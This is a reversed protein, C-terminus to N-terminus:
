IIGTLYAKVAAGIAKPSFRERFAEQGGKAIRQRLARDRKLLLIAQALAQPNAMECLLANEKHALVERASPSDGTIVPKGMALAVFVKRPVVRRAQPTDGFIGLCVDAPLIHEAILIEPPLWTRHFTISKVQLREALSSVEKYAQGDGVLEFSIDPYGELIKAAKVICDVGHLPIYQGFYLVRFPGNDRRRMGQRCRNYVGEAGVYAWRLKDMDVGFEDHLYRVHAETDLLVLDALRCSLKDVLYVMRALLSGRRALRRDGVIIETLPIFIDFVLPKGSLIALLKALFVDFHGAYGVMMVDYHGVKAYERLLRLYSVLFRRWLSPAFLGGKVARMKDATDRWLEAHCEIVEVGNQRLGEIIVRNRSRDIDYTGFYCVRM